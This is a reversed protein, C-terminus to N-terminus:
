FGFFALVLILVFLYFAVVSLGIIFAAIAFGRGAKRTGKLRRMAIAGLVIAVLFAAFAILGLVGTTIILSSVVTLVIGGIASAFAAIAMKRGRVPGKTPEEDLYRQGSRRAEERELQELRRLERADEPTFTPTPEITDRTSLALMKRFLPKPAASVPASVAGLPANFVLLLVWVSLAYRLILHM